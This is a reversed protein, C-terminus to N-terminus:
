LETGKTLTFQGEINNWIYICEAGNITWSYGTLYSGHQDDLILVGVEKIFSDKDPNCIYFLTWHYGNRFGLYSKGDVEWELFEDPDIGSEAKMDGIDPQFFDGLIEVKPEINAKEVNIPACCVLLAVLIVLLYKM